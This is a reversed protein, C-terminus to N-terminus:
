GTDDPQESQTARGSLVDELLNSGVRHYVAQYYRFVRERLHIPQVHPGGPLRFQASRRAGMRRSLAFPQDLRVLPRDLRRDFSHHKPKCPCVGQGIGGLFASLNEGTFFEGQIGLRDTIPVRMDANLSWTRFRQDDAPPLNLPAGSSQTFDFGTEGIHGSIGFTIPRCGKGRHGLVWGVRGEVVPWDSPERVVGATTAFDPVIDANLSGQLQMM